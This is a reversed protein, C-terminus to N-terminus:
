EGEKGGEAKEKEKSLLEKMRHRIMEQEWGNSEALKVGGGYGGAGIKVGSVENAGTKSETDRVAIKDQWKKDSQAQSM